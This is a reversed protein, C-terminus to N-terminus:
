EAFRNHTHTHTVTLTIQCRYRLSVCLSTAPTWRIQAFSLAACFARCFLRASRAASAAASTRRAARLSLFGRAVISPAGRLVVLDPQFLSGRAVLPLPAACRRALRSHCYLQAGVLSGRTVTASRVSWRAALSLLAACRRALRSIRVSWRAAFSSRVALPSPSGRAVISPASRLVAPVVGRVLLSPLAACLSRRFRRAILRVARLSRGGGLRQRRKLPITAATQQDTQSGRMLVLSPDRHLSLVASDTSWKHPKCVRYVVRM